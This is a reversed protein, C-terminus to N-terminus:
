TQGQVSDTAKGEQCFQFQTIRSLGSRPSRRGLSNQGISEAIKKACGLRHTPINHATGKMVNLTREPSIKGNNADHEKM